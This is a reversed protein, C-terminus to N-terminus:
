LERMQSDEHVTDGRCSLQQDMREHRIPHRAYLLCESLLHLYGPQGFLITVHSPPIGPLLHSRNNIIARDRRILCSEDPPLHDIQRRATSEAERCGTCTPLVQREFPRRVVLGGSHPIRDHEPATPRLPVPQLRRGPWTAYARADAADVRRRGASSLVHFLALFWKAARPLNSRARRRLRAPVCPRSTHRYPTLTLVDGLQAHVSCSRVSTHNGISM